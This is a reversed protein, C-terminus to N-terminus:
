VSFVSQLVEFDEPKGLLLKSGTVRVKANFGAWVLRHPYSWYVARFVQPTAGTAILASAETVAVVDLNPTCPSNGPPLQLQWDTPNWDRLDLSLAGSRMKQVVNQIMPCTIDRMVITCVMQQETEHPIYPNRFAVPNLIKLDRWPISKVRLVAFGQCAMDMASDGGWADWEPDTCQHFVLLPADIDSAM